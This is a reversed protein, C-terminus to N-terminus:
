ITRAAEFASRISTHLDGVKLGDGVEYAEVGQERLEGLMSSNSKMGVSLVVDTAEIYEDKGEATTVTLGTRDVSQLKTDTLIRVNSDRLMMKIAVKNMFPM